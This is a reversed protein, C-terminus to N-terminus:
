DVRAGVAMNRQLSADTGSASYIQKKGDEGLILYETAYRPAGEYPVYHRSVITGSVQLSLRTWVTDYGFGWFIFAAFFATVIWQRSAKADREFNYIKDM